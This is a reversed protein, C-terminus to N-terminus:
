PSGGQQQSHAELTLYSARFREKARFLIKRTNAESLHLLVAIERATFGGTTQLLLVARWQPPLETLVRAIADRESVLLAIDPAHDLVVRPIRWQNSSDAGSPAEVMDLSLWSIMRRRRTTLVLNTAIRFLWSHPHDVETLAVQARYARLFTEQVLDAALERDGHVM